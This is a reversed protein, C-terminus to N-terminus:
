IADITGDEDEVELGIVAKEDNLHISKINWNMKILREVMGRM